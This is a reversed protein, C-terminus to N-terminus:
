KHFKNINLETELKNTSKTKMLYKLLQNHHNSYREELIYVKQMGYM